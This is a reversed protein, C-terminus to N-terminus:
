ASEIFARVSRKLDALTLGHNGNLTRNIVMESAPEISELAELFSRARDAPTIRPRGRTVQTADTM